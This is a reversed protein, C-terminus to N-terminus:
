GFTFIRSLLHNLQRNPTKPKHAITPDKGPNNKYESKVPAALVQRAGANKAQCDSQNAEVRGARAVLFLTLEESNYEM